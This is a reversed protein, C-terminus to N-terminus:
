AAIRERTEHDRWCQGAGDEGAYYEKRCELCSAMGSARKLAQERGYAPFLIEMQAETLKAEKPTEVGNGLARKMWPAWDKVYAALRVPIGDQTIRHGGDYYAAKFATRPKTAERFEADNGLEGYWKPRWIPVGDMTGHKGGSYYDRKSAAPKAPAILSAAYDARAQNRRTRNNM